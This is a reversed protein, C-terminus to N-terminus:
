KPKEMGRFTNGLETSSEMKGCATMDEETQGPTYETARNETTSTSAPTNEAM